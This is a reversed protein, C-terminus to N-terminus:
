RLDATKRTVTSPASSLTKGPLSSLWGLVILIRGIAGILILFVFFWSPGLLRWGACGLLILEEPWFLRALANLRPVWLILIIATFLGALVMTLDRAQRENQTAQSTLRLSPPKDADNGQWYTPTGREGGLIMTNVVGETPQTLARQEAQKRLPEFAYSKALQVNRTRLEGIKGGTRDDQQLDINHGYRYFLEQLPALQRPLRIQDRSQELLTASLRTMADARALDLELPATSSTASAARYGPPIHVTWQAPGDVTGDLRPLALNPREIREANGEYTWRVAIAHAGSVRARPLWLVNQESVPPAIAVGDITLSNLKAQDPLTIRLDDDAQHYIWYVTEHLWHQGDVVAASHDSLVIRSPSIKLVGSRPLLRLRWNDAQVKWATGARRVREAEAPWLHLEKAPDQVPRLGVTEEARLERGAVAVWREVQGVGEIRLDPVVINSAARLPMKGVVKIRVNKGESPPMLLSWVRRNKERSLERCEVNRPAEVHLDGSTWDSLRLTLSRPETAAPILDIAASFTFEHERMEAFTLVLADAQIPKRTATFVAWYDPQTTVFGLDTLRPSSLRGLNHVTEPQLALGAAANVYVYTITTRAGVINLPTLRVRVPPTPQSNDPAPTAVAQWGTLRIDAQPTSRALWIQVRGGTRTWSRLDSATVEIDQLNPPVDCEVMNVPHEPSRVRATFSVEAQQGNLNWTVRQLCEATREPPMLLLRLVPPGAAARQFSYAHLPTGADPMGAEDWIRTFNRTANVRLHEAVKAQLGEAHFALYRPTETDAETQGDRPAPLPLVVNGGLPQRPVFEGTIQVGRALPRQFELVLRRPGGPALHWDKLRPLTEAASAEPLRSVSLSRVDLADPLDLTFRTPAGRRVYVQYVGFLTSAAPHLKWLYAERVSLHVPRPQKGEERWRLHLLTNRGLDVELRLPRDAPANPALEPTTTQRGRGVVSHLYRAGAPAEFQVRSQHVEPINVRVNREEDSGTPVSFRLMVVHVGRDKLKIAYGTQPAKLADPYAPAGDVLAEKLQLPENPQSSSLPLNLVSPQDAFCRVRYEAKIEAQVGNVTGEYQSSVVVPQRLGAVGRLALEDLQKLLKPPVLVTQKDPADDSGNVILVTVPGGDGQGTVGTVIALLVAATTVASAVNKQTGRSVSALYTIVAVTGAGLLPYWALDRLGSPLWLVAAGSTVLWFLLLGIRLGNRWDRSRWALATFLITLLLGGAIMPERRVLSISDASTNGAVPEWECWDAGLDDGLRRLADPTSDNATTQQRAAPRNLWDFATRFRGSRDHGFRVAAAAAEEVDRPLAAGTEVPNNWAQLQKTTTLLPAPRCPVYVLGLQDWPQFTPQRPLAALSLPTSPTIGEARLAATDLVLHRGHRLPEALVFDLSEGFTWNQRHRGETTLATFLDEMLVHQQDKWENASLPAFLSRSLAPALEAVDDSLRQRSSTTTGANPSGRTGPTLDFNQRVLPNMSPPLRWTRRVELPEIPLKPLPASLTTWIKWSPTLWQYVLDIAHPGPSAPLPIHLISGTEDAAVDLQTSWRGDVTMALPTAGPPLQLPVTRQRWNSVQFSFRGLLRGGPEVTTSLAVRDIVPRSAGAPNAGALSKRGQVLLSNAASSHYRFLRAQEPKAGVPELAGHPSTSTVDVENTQISVEGDFPEASLVAPCPVHWRLADGAPAALPLRATGRLRLPERLPQALTLRWIEAGPLPAAYRTLAVLPNRIGLSRWLPAADLTPQRHVSKLAPGAEAEWTWAGNGSNPVFIEITTPAGTGPILNVHTILVSGQASLTVENNVRARFQTRHPRLQISGAVPMGRYALLYDPTQNGWPGAQAATTAIGSARLEGHLLPDISIAFVGERSHAGLATLTPVVVRAGAAPVSAPATSTLQIRLQATGPRGNPGPVIARKLEAVLTPKGKDVFVGFGRLLDPPETVVDKVKWDAQLAIPLRFLQGQDVDVTIWSTLTAGRPGVQWWTAQRTRFDPPPTVVRASPRARDGGLTIGNNTLNLTQWTDPGPAPRPRPATGPPTTEADPTLAFSGAQWRELRVEPHVRLQMKEGRLIAGSARVEPCRWVHDEPLDAWCRLQVKLPLNADQFPERLKVAVIVPKGREESRIEWGEFNSANSRLSAEYPHLGPDCEFILERVGQHAAELDFDYDARIVDPEIEQRSVVQALILAPGQDTRSARRIVLEVQSQGSFDLRWLRLDTSEAPHPGSVLVTERAAITRDAPLKLELTAAAAPPFRLDFHVGDPAPIGRATWDFLATNEGAQEVLLGATKGDFDGLAAEGNQIRTNRLAINLSPLPLIGPVSGPNLIRWQGTGNAFANEIQTARYIAEVLRPPNRLAESTAKAKEYRAEFEARPLQTLQRVRELEGPVREKPILVRRIEPVGPAEDAAFGPDRVSLSLGAALAVCGLTLLGRQHFLRHMLITNSFRAKKRAVWM